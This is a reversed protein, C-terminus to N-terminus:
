RDGAGARPAPLSTRRQRTGHDGSRRRRTRRPPPAPAGPERGAVAARAVGELGPLGAHRAVARAPRPRARAGGALDRAPGSRRHGPALAPPGPEGRDAVPCRRDFGRDPLAHRRARVARPLSGRRAPADRPRPRRAITGRARRLGPDRTRGVRGRRQTVLHAHQGPECGVEAHRDRAGLEDGILRGGDQVALELTSRAVLHGVARPGLLQSPQQPTKVVHRRRLDSEFTDTGLCQAFAMPDRAIPDPAADHRPERRGVSRGGLCQDFREEVVTVPLERGRDDVVIEAGLVHERRWVALEGAHDVPFLDAESIRHPVECPPEICCERPPLAHLYGVAGDIAIARADTDRTRM